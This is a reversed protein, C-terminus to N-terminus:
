SSPDPYCMGAEQAQWQSGKMIVWAEEWKGRRNRKEDRGIMGDKLSPFTGLSAKVQQGQSPIQSSVQVIVLDQNGRVPILRKQLSGSLSM